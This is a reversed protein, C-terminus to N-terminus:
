ETGRKTAPECGVVLTAVVVGLGEGAGVAQMKERFRRTIKLPHRDIAAVVAAAKGRPISPWPAGLATIKGAKRTSQQKARRENTFSM